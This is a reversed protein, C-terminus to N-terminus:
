SPRDAGGSVNAGGRSANRGPFLSRVGRTAYYLLTMYLIVPVAVLAMVSLWLLGLPVRVFRDLRSFQGGSGGTRAAIAAPQASPATNDTM